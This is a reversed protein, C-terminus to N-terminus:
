LAGNPSTRVPAPRGSRPEDAVTERENVFNRHRQFVQACSVSGDGFAKKIKGYTDTAGGGGVKVCVRIAYRQELNNKETKTISYCFM